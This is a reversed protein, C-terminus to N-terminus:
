RSSETSGGHMRGHYHCGREYGRRFAADDCIDPYRGRLHESVDDYTKGRTEPHQAAEFGQRYRSEDAKFDGGTAVYHEEEASRLGVWLQDRAADISEAGSQRMVSEAATRLADSESHVIIVTRGQRLADEYVYLEDRPVGTFLNDELADGAAAGAVAGGVGLLGMAAFGIAAVTGIGPILASAAAAGFWGLAAGSAGGVVAGVAQGMGPGETETTQVAAELEEETMNPILFNIQERPIGLALIDHAARQAEERSKFIGTVASM